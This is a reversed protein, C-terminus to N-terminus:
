LRCTGDPMHVRRLEEPPQSSAFQLVDCEIVGPPEDLGAPELENAHPTAVADVHVPLDGLFEVELRTFPSAFGYWSRWNRLRKSFYSRFGSSHDHGVIV